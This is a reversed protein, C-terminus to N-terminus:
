LTIMMDDIETKKICIYDTNSDNESYGIIFKNEEKVFLFGLTYEIRNNNMTFLTSYKKLQMTM